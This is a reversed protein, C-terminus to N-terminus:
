LRQYTKGERIRQETEKQETTRLKGENQLEQDRNLTYLIDPCRYIHNKGAMEVMPLCLAHDWAAAFIEETAPDILDKRQVKNLLWFKYTKLHSYPFAHYRYTNKKDIEPDIDLNFHGGLQGTPWMQYQGFTM